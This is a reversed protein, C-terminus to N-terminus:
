PYDPFKFTRSVEAVASATATEPAVEVVAQREVQWFEARRETPRDPETGKRHYQSPVAGTEPHSELEV